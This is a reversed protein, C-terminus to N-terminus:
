KQEINIGYNKLDQLNNIKKNPDNFDKILQDFNPKQQNNPTTTPANTQQQVPQNSQVSQNQNPQSVPTNTLENILQDFKNM